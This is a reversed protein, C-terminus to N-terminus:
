VQVTELWTDVIILDGGCRVASSDTEKEWLALLGKSRFGVVMLLTQSVGIVLFWMPVFLEVWARNLRREM